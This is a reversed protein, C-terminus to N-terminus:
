NNKEFSEKATDILNEVPIKLKRKLHAKKKNTKTGEVDLTITLKIKKNPSLDKIVSIFEPKMSKLEITTRTKVLREEKISLSISTDPIIITERYYWEFTNQIDFKIKVPLVNVDIKGRNIIKFKINLYMSQPKDISKPSFEYFCGPVFRLKVHPYYINSIGIEKDVLDRYVLFAAIIFFLSFWSESLNVLISPVIKNILNAISPFFNKILSLIKLVILLLSFWKTLLEKMYILFLSLTGLVM